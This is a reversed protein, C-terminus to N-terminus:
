VTEAFESRSGLRLAALAVVNNFFEFTYQLLAILHHPFATRCSFTKLLSFTKSRIHQCNIQLSKTREVVILLNVFLNIKVWGQVQLM